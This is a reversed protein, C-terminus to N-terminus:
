KSLKVYNLQTVNDDRHKKIKGRLKFSDGTNVSQKATFLVMNGDFKGTVYYCAWNQSYICDIIEVTGHVQDGIKGFHQSGFAAEQKLEMRKDRHVGREYAAPLSAIIGITKHDFSDVQDASAAAVASKEYDNATGALINFLKLQWYGQVAGAEKRDVDNICSFDDAAIWERLLVKNAKVTTYPANSGDPLWPSGGEYVIHNEKVYSGNIRQAACAAAFVDATNIQRSQKKQKQAM